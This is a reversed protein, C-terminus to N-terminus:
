FGKEAVAGDDRSPSFNRSPTRWDNYRIALYAEPDSPISISRGEWHITELKDYYKCAVCKLADSDIWQYRDNIRYKVFLDIHFNVHMIKERVTKIKISRVPGPLWPNNAHRPKLLYKPLFNYKLALIREVSEGPIGIDVDHDWPILTGDRIIGLLSGDDLWYTIGMRDFLDLTEFLMKKIRHFYKGTLQIKKPKGRSETHRKVHPPVAGIVETGPISLDDIRSQYFRNKTKWDAYRSELYHGPDSPVPYETGMFTVWENKDYFSADISKCSRYDIWRCRDEHRYKVTIVVKVAADAAHEWRRIVLFRTYPGAVWQRGSLNGVKKLRYRIGLSKAAILFRDQADADISLDINPHGPLHNKERIFGLLTGSEIRYPINNRKLLTTVDRLM